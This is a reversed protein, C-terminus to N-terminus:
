PRTGGPRLAARVPAHLDASPDALDTALALLEAAGCRVGGLHVSAGAPGFPLSLGPWGTLNWLSLWPTWETQALFNREPAMAAFHGVPPPDFALTPTIVADIEWRGRITEPLELRLRHHRRAAADSVARGRERIWRVMPSYADDPMRSAFYTMVETFTHFVDPGAPDYPSPVEVVEHGADSLRDAAALAAERWQKGVAVDAHFPEVTVGVRMRRIRYEGPDPLDALLAADALSRTLFGATALRGGRVDHAPKLGVLGCAAAPVRISGGGDSGLAAAVAGTAVAVASGGSSGGPTMGPRVPNDPAPMGVPETYATAGMESTATTAPITAGRDLLREVPSATIEGTRALAASGFTCTVGEIPYLDKVAVPLGTLSRHFPRNPPAVTGPVSVGAPLGRSSRAAALAGDIERARSMALGVTLSAVGTREAPGVLRDIADGALEVASADGERVAAVGAVASTASTM